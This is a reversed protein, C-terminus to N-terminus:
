KAGDQTPAACVVSLTKGARYAAYAATNKPVCALSGPLSHYGKWFADSLGNGHNETMGKHFLAASKACYASVCNNFVRVLYPQRFPNRIAKSSEQKEM